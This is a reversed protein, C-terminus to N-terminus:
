PLRQAGCLPYASRSQWRSAGRPARSFGRGPGRSRPHDPCDGHHAGVGAGAGARAAAASATSDARQHRAARDSHHARQGSRRDSRCGVGAGPRALWAHRRLVRRRRRAGLNGARDRRPVAADRLSLVPSPGARRRGAGLRREGRVRAPRRRHPSLRCALRTRRTGAVWTTAGARCGQPRSAASGRWESGRARGRCPSVSRPQSFGHPCLRRGSRAALVQEVLSVSEFFESWDFSGILRLSGILNAMTAQEGAQHRGESSIADEVTKGRAALTTDLERRLAAAKAGYERSRQLLRTVFAPHLETRFRCSATRPASSRRSSGIRTSGIRVARPWATPAHRAPARRPCAQAREAVGVARGDDTAGGISVRHHLPPATACGSQRREESDARARPRLHSPLRRIRGDRSAAFPWLLVAAPRAPYRACGGCDRSLQRAAVRGGAIVTDHRADDALATYVRRLVRAHEDLRRLHVRSNGRRRRALSLLAALRRSHEELLDIGLLELEGIVRCGPRLSIM